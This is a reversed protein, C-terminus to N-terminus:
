AAFTVLHIPMWVLTLLCGYAFAAGGERNHYRPRPAARASLRHAGNGITVLLRWVFYGFPALALAIGLPVPAWAILAVTWLANVMIFVGARNVASVYHSEARRRQIADISSLRALFDSAGFAEISLMLAGVITFLLGWVNLLAAQLRLSM